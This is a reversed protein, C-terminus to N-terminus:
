YSAPDVGDNYIGVTTCYLCSVLVFSVNFLSPIQPNDYCRWLNRFYIVFFRNKSRHDPTGQSEPCEILIFISLYLTTINNSATTKTSVPHPFFLEESLLVMTIQCSLSSATISTKSLCKFSSTGSISTTNSFFVPKVSDNFNTPFSGEEAGSMYRKAWSLSPTYASIPIRDGIVSKM